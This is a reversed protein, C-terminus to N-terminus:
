QASERGLPEDTLIVIAGPDLHLGFVVRNGPRVKVPQLPAGL